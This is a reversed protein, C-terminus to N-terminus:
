DLATLSEVLADLKKLAAKEKKEYLSVFGASKSSAIERVLLGINNLAYNYIYAFDTTVNDHIIDLVRMADDTSDRTYKVKVAVEYYAPLVDRYGYFALAEMVASTEDLIQCTTPVCVVTSIDHALSHYSEESEDYKPFPVAAYDVEMGRMLEAAYFLYTYYLLENANFKRPMTVDLTENTPPFVYVGPNNYYLEQLDEMFNVTRENNVTLYPINNEDRATTRLGGGYMLLDSISPTIVGGGFQDDEDTKGNGNLDRYVAKCNEAYRDFTWTGDLVDRYIEDTSEFYDRYLNKNVYVCGINRLLGLTIDGTVFYINKGIAMERIYDGYWWKQDLHLYKADAINLLMGNLVQPVIDYQLGFVLDYDDSGASVFRNLIASTTDTEWLVNNATLEVNLDDEVAIQRKYIASNVVDASDEECFLLDKDREFRISNLIRIEKGAFDLEEPLLSKLTEKAVAADETVPATGETTNTVAPTDDGCSALLTTAMCLLLLRCIAPHNKKM